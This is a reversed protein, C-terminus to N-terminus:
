DAYYQRNAQIKHARYVVEYRNTISYLVYYSDSDAMFYTVNGTDSVSFEKLENGYSDYVTPNYESDIFDKWTM